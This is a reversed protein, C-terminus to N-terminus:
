KAVMRISTPILQGPTEFEAGNGYTKVVSNAFPVIDAAKVLDSEAGLWTSCGTTGQMTSAKQVASAYSKNDIASFNTGGASLGAGSLFPVLQDPSNVNLPVWAIDWDGTGFLLQNIATEDQGKAKVDIGAAKWQQVALEAAAAVAPGGSTDYIFTLTGPSAKKAAAQAAQVNQAPLAGSVSDGPCAVPEIAALTTAPTGSGSTLVKELQGLDLAQTLAMRLAPSSTAHGQAHNYWQEGLLAPTKAAFLGAADLRKTDPGLVQASNLGGSLLLNAATSENEIVKVVIKDPMGPTATTAGNPGWTYGNRIQYDFHDGPAAQTLQYPGTGDTTSQLSKRNKMGQKCVMPLSALGNLAFPAPSALTITLTRSANDATAKAGVPLFTGLFPSKNKPDAVYAINAAADSATFHSGDSCTIGDALTLTIKKGQEKWKTALASQIAGSKPDVSLLPDYALQTVTFLASQASSQPDLNGPDSKLAMTFTGGDVVNSSDGKGATSSGGSGCAALLTTTACLAITATTVRKNLKM